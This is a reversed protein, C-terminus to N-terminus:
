KKFILINEDVIRRAPFRHNTIKRSINKQLIFNNKGSINIIEEPITKNGISHNSGGIVLSLYGHPKLIRSMESCTIDMSQFYSEIANKKLHRKYRPCIEEAKMKNILDLYEDNSSFNKPFYESLEDKLWYFSLRFGMLYDTALPYPPSTIIQDISEDEIFSLNQSNAPICRTLSNAEKISINKERLENIFVKFDALMDNLKDKFEKIANKYKLEYKKTGNKSPNLCNDAIYGYNRNSHVSCYKLRDSFALLCFERIDKNEIRNIEKKILALEILTNKHFWQHKNPFNPNNKELDININVGNSFFPSWSLNEAEEIINRLLNSIEKELDIPNIMTTKVKSIFIAMPNLDIGISHRNLRMAEVLTTGRGSFPDLILDEKSKSLSSILINPIQPVYTSLYWHFSHIGYNTKAKDFDWNIKDLVKLRDSSM